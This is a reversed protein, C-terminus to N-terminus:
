PRKASYIERYIVIASFTAAAFMLLPLLMTLWFSAGAANRGTSSMGFQSVVQWLGPLYLFVQLGLFVCFLQYIFLSWRYGRYVAYASFILFLAAAAGPGYAYYDSQTLPRETM